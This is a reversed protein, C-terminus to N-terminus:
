EKIIIIASFAILFLGVTKEIYKLSRNFLKAITPHSLFMALCCFWSVIVIFMEVAFVLEWSSPTSPKIFLTFLALFFLTAKPNLLNCLFGQQWAKFAYLENSMRRAKSTELSQNQQSLLLKIGLYALYLSGLYKICKFILISQSIIVALGLACYSIHVLIACGVGFATFLGARRSHLLTNKTVLAFDPGPIMSIFLMMLGISVLQSIM